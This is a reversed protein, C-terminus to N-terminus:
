PASALTAWLSLNTKATSLRQEFQANIWPRNKDMVPRSHERHPALRASDSPKQEKAQAHFRNVNTL